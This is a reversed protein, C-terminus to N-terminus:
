FLQYSIPMSFSRLAVKNKFMWPFTLRFAKRMTDSYYGYVIPNLASNFFIFFFKTDHIIPGVHVWVGSGQVALSM